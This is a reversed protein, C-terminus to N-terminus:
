NARITVRNTAACWVPGGAVVNNAVVHDDGGSLKISDVVCDTVTINDGSASTVCIPPIMMYGPASGTVTMHALTAGAGLVIANRGGADIQTSRASEGQLRVGAPVSVPFADRDYRGAPLTVVDGATADSLLEAITAMM